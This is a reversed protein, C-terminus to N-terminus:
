RKLRYHNEVWHRDQKFIKSAEPVKRLSMKTLTYLKDHVSIAGFENIAKKLAEHRIEAPETYIYGYKKFEGMRIFGFGRGSPNKDKVCSPKVHVSAKEPHIRYMKGDTRKVTYGRELINKDFKRVYGRKEVYGPPCRRRQTKHKSGLHLAHRTYNVRKLLAAEAMRDMLSIFITINSKM